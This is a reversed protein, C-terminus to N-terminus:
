ITRKGNKKSEKKGASKPTVSSIVPAAKFLEYLGDFLPLCQKLREHDDSFIQVMGNIVASIGSAEPRSFKHDKLDIDHIIRAIENLASDGLSFKRILTEFTCDEGEHTFDGEFMDFTIGGATQEDKAVFRFRPRRDIFRKILWASALRDIHIDRRTIWLKEQYDALNYKSESAPGIAKPKSVAQSDLLTKQCLEYSKVAKTKNSANFFDTTSIRDLEQRHKTLEAEYHSIRLATLSGGRFQEKIAGLLGDLEGTLQAYEENRTHRFSAIIEQDTAGEVAGARFVNAEGGIEEIEKKLWQFDENTKDNFPLVYVSNKISIAGLTQLKRWIRVRLKTPKQPLQHILLVWEQANKLKM